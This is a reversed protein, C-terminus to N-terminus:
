RAGRAGVGGAPLDIRAPQQRRNEEAADRKVSDAGAEGEGRAAAPVSIARAWRRSHIREGPAGAPCRRQQPTIRSAPARSPGAARATTPGVQDVDQQARRRHGQHERAAAAPRPGVTARSAVTTSAAELAETAGRWWRRLPPSPAARPARRGPGRREAEGSEVARCGGRGGGPRRRALLRNQSDTRQRDAPATAAPAAPAAPAGPEPRSLAPRGQGPRRRQRQDEAQAREQGDGGHLPVPRGPCSHAQSNARLSPSASAATVPPARCSGRAMAPMPRSINAGESPSDATRASSVPSRGDAASPSPSRTAACGAPRTSRSPQGRAPRHAKARAESRPAPAPARAPPAPQRAQASHHSDLSGRSHSGTNGSNSPSAARPQAQRPGDPLTGSPTQLRAASATPASSNRDSPAALRQRWAGDSSHRWPPGRTAPPPGGPGRQGGVGIQHHARGSRLQQPQRVQARPARVRCNSWAM